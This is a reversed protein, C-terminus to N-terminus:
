RELSLWIVVGAHSPVRRKWVFIVSLNWKAINKTVVVHVAIGLV